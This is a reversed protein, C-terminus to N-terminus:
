PRGREDLLRELSQRDQHSLREGPESPVHVGARQDDLMLVRWLLVGAAMGGVLMVLPGILARRPARRRRSGRDAM